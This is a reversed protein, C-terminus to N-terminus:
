YLAPLCILINFHHELITNNKFSWLESVVYNLVFIIESNLIGKSKDYKDEYCLFGNKVTFVISWLCKLIVARSCEASHNM